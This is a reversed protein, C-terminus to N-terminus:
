GWLWWIDCSNEVVYLFFSIITSCQSSSVCWFLYFISVKGKDVYYDMLSGMCKDLDNYNEDRDELISVGKSQYYERVDLNLSDLDGKILDPLFETDMTIGDTEKVAYIDYLINAGGDACIKVDCHEWVTDLLDKCELVSPNNLVILATAKEEKGRKDGSFAELFHNRHQKPIGQSSM